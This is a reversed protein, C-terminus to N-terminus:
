CFIFFGLGEELFGGRRELGKIVYIEGGLMVEGVEWRWGDLGKGDM